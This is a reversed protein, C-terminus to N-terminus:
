ENNDTDDRCLADLTCHLATAIRDLNGITVNEIKIYNNEYDTIKKYHVGSRESLEKRSLGSKERLYKINNRM